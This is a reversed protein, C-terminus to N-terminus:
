GTVCERGVKRVLIQPEDLVLVGMKENTQYCYSQVILTVQEKGEGIQIISDKPPLTGDLSVVPWMVGEEDASCLYLTKAKEKIRQQEEKQQRLNRDAQIFDQNLM